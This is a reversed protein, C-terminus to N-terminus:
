FWATVPVHTEPGGASSPPRNAGPAPAGDAAPKRACSSSVSLHAVRTSIVTVHPVSAGPPLRTVDNFDTDNGEEGRRVLAM